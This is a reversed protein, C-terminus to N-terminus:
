KILQSYKLLKFPSLSIAPVHIIAHIPVPVLRIHVNGHGDFRPRTRVIGVSVFKNAM